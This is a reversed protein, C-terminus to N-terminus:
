KLKKKKSFQLSLRHDTLMILHEHDNSFRQGLLNLPPPFFLRWTPFFLILSSRSRETLCFQFVLSAFGIRISESISEIQAWSLRPDNHNKKKQLIELHRWFHKYFDSRGGVFLNFYIFLYIFWFAFRIKISPWKISIQRRSTIQVFNFSDSYFDVGFFLGLSEFYGWDYTTGLSWVKRQYEHILRNKLQFNLCKNKFLYQLICWIKWYIIRM